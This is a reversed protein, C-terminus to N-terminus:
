AEHVWKRRGIFQLLTVGMVIVFVLIAVAAAYGMDFAQFGKEYLYM